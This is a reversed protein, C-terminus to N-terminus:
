ANKVVDIAVSLKGTVTGSFAIDLPITKPPSPSPESREHASYLVLWSPLGYALFYILERRYMKM